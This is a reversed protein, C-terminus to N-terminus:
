RATAARRTDWWARAAEAAPQVEATWNEPEHYGVAHVHALDRLRGIFAADDAPRESWPQGREVHHITWSGSSAEFAASTRPDNDLLLFSSTSPDPQPDPTLLSVAKMMRILEAPAWPVPFRSTLAVALVTRCPYPPGCERCSNKRSAKVTGPLRGHSRHGRFPLERHHEPRCTPCLHPGRPAHLAVAQQLLDAPLGAQEGPPTLERLFSLLKQHFREAGVYDAFPSGPTGAVQGRASEAAAGGGGGLGAGDAVGNASRGFADSAM